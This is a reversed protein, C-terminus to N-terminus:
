FYIMAVVTNNSVIVPLEPGIKSVLDNIWPGATLVVKKAYYKGATTTLCITPGPEIDVVKEMDKITGGKKEM